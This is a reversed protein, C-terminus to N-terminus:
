RAKTQTEEASPDVLCHRLEIWSWFLICANLTSVMYGKEVLKNTLVRKSKAARTWREKVYDFIKTARKEPVCKMVCSM